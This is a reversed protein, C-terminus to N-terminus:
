LTTHRQRTSHTTIASFEIHSIGSDPVSQRSSQRRANDREDDFPSCNVVLLQPLIPAPEVGVFGRHSNRRQLLRHCDM